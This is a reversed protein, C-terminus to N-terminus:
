KKIIPSTATGRADLPEINSHTISLYSFLRFGYGYKNIFIFYGLVMEPDIHLKM